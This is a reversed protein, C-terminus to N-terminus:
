YAMVVLEQLLIDPTIGDWVKKEPPTLGALRFRIPFLFTKNLYEVSWKGLYSDLAQIIENEFLNKRDNHIRIYQSYGLSDITFEVYIYAQINKSRAKNPYRLNAAWHKYFLVMGEEYSMKEEAIDLGVQIRPQNPLVIFKEVYNICSIFLTDGVSAKFQSFGSDNTKLPVTDGKYIEVNELPKKTLNDVVRITIINEQASTQLTLFCSAIILIVKLM